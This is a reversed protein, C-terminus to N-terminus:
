SNWYSAIWYIQRKYSTKRRSCKRLMTWHTSSSLYRRLSRPIIKTIRSSLTSQTRFKELRERESDWLCQREQTSRIPSRTSLDTSWEPLLLHYKWHLHVQWAFHEMASKVSKRKLIELFSPTNNSFKAPKLHLSDVKAYSPRLFCEMIVRKM